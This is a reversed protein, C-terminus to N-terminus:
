ISTFPIFIPFVKNMASLTLYNGNQRQAMDLLPIIGSAKYNDPYKALIVDIERYNRETFDFPVDENNDDLPLHGGPPPGYGSFSRFSPNVLSTRPLSRRTLPSLRLPSLRGHFLKALGRVM